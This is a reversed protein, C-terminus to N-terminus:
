AGVMLVFLGVVCVFVAALGGGIASALLSEPAQRRRQRRLLLPYVDFGIM